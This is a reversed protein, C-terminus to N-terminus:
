NYAVTVPFTGSYAGLETSNSITFEGGVTFTDTGGTLTGSTKSGTLTVAIPTAGGTKTMSLTGLTISYGLAAEGNVTYAAAAAAPGSALAVATGGSISRTGGTSVTVTSSGTTPRTVTGFVLNSSKTLSIPAIITTTGTTDSVTATTQASTQSAATMAAAAVAAKLINRIM